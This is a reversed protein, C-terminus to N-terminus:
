ASAIIFFPWTLNFVTKSYFFNFYFLRFIMSFNLLINAYLLDSLLFFILLFYSFINPNVKTCIHLLM